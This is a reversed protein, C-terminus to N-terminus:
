EPWSAELFKRDEYSMTTWHPEKRLERVIRIVTPDDTKGVRAFYEMCARQASARAGLRRPFGDGDLQQACAGVVADFVRADGPTAIAQLLLPLMGGWEGHQQAWTALELATEPNGIDSLIQLAMVRADPEETKRSTYPLMALSVIAAVAERTQLESLAALAFVRQSPDEKGVDRMLEIAQRDGIAGFYEMFEWHTVPDARFLDRADAAIASLEVRRAFHVMARTQGASRHEQRWLSLFLEEIEPRAGREWLAALLGLLADFHKVPIKRKLADEIMPLWYADDKGALLRLAENRSGQTSLDEYKEIVGFLEPAIGHRRRKLAAESPPSLAKITERIKTELERQDTKTRCLDSVRQDNELLSRLVPVVSQAGSGIKKLAVLAYSLAGQSWQQAAHEDALAERVIPVMAQADPGYHSLAYLARPDLPVGAESQCRLSDILQELLLPHTLAGGFCVRFAAEQQERSGRLLQVCLPVFVQFVELDQPAERAYRDMLAMFTTFRSSFPAQAAREIVARFVPRLVRGEANIIPLARQADLPDKALDLFFEGPVEEEAVLLARFAEENSIQGAKAAKVIDSPAAHEALEKFADDRQRWDKSRLRSKIADIISM